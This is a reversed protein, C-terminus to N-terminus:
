IIEGKKRKRETAKAAHFAEVCCSRAFSFLGFKCKVIRDSEAIIDESM